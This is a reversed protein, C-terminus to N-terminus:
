GRVVAVEVVVGVNDGEEDEVRSPDEEDIEEQSLISGMRVRSSHISIKSFPGLGSQSLRAKNFSSSIM